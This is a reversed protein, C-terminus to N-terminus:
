KNKVLINRLTIMIYDYAWNPLISLIIWYIASRLPLTIKSKRQIIAKIILDSAYSSTIIGPMWFNNSQTMETKVFGLNIITVIINYKKLTLRLGEAWLNIAAKSASYPGSNVTSRFSSVSSIIVIQGSKVTKMIELCPIITNVAGFYNIQMNEIVTEIPKKFKEDINAVGANVILLDIVINKKIFDQICENMGEMYKVDAHYCYVIAGLDRCRDAVERLNEFSKNTFLGLIRGPKALAISLEAGIGRSAGTIIINKM